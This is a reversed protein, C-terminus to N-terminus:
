SIYGYTDIYIVFLDLEQYFALYFQVSFCLVGLHRAKHQKRDALSKKWKKVFMRKLFFM